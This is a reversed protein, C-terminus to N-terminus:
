HGAQWYGLLWETMFGYLQEEDHLCTKTKLSLLVESEFTDVNKIGTYKKVYIKFKKIWNLEEKVSNIIILFCWNEVAVCESQTRM